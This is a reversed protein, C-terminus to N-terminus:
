QGNNLLNLANLVSSRKNNLKSFCKLLIAIKASKKVLGILRRLFKFFRFSMVKKLPQDYGFNGLHISLALRLVDYPVVPSCANM